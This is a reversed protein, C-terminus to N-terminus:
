PKGEVNVVGCIAELIYNDVPIRFIQGKLTRVDISAKLTGSVPALYKVLESGPDKVAEIQRYEDYGVVELTTITPVPPGEYTQPATSLVTM